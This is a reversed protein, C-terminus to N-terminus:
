LIQQLLFMRLPFFVNNYIELQFVRYIYLYIYFFLFFLLLILFINHILCLQTYYNQHHNQNILLFHIKFKYIYNDM